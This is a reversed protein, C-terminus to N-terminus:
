RAPASELQFYEIGYSDLLVKLGDWGSAELVDLLLALLEPADRISRWGDATIFCVSDERTGVERAAEDEDTSEAGLGAFARLGRSWSIMRHGETAAELENWRGAEDALGQAIGALLSWHSATSNARGRGAKGQSWVMELALKDPAFSAAEYTQKTVYGALADHVAAGDLVRLQQAGYGRAEGGAAEVGHVWLQVVEAAIQEALQRSGRVMIIPHFHPHWGNAGITVEAARIYGVRGNMGTDVV